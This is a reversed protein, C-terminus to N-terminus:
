IEDDDAKLCYGIGRVTHILPLGFPKDIIQRLLHVHSRLSDSDPVDDGWLVEQLTERRVVHPSSKMLTELLKLGTPNLKLSKGQRVVQLTDLDFQLDAVHLQNDMRSRCRRLVAEIRAHLESLAFPKVLYDDSGAKFGALKDDVSDRATLMIVPTHVRAEQRLNRCLTLGDMGPLMIDLVILDFTQTVALHLGVLGDRACDVTYGKMQLYDAINQLIAEHDEIVLIRMAHGQRKLRNPIDLTKERRDDAMM